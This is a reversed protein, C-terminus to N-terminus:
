ITAAFTVQKTLPKPVSPTFAFSPLAGGHKGTQCNIELVNSSGGVNDSGSGNSSSSRSHPHGEESKDTYENDSSAHSTLTTNEDSIPTLSGTWIRLASGTVSPTSLATSNNTGSGLSHLEVHSSVVNLAANAMENMLSSSNQRLLQAHKLVSDAVAADQPNSNDDTNTNALTNHWSVIAASDVLENEYLSRLLAAHRPTRVDQNAESLKELLQLVASQDEPMTIFTHLLRIIRMATQQPSRSDDRLKKALASPQKANVVTSSGSNSETLQYLSEVFACLISRRDASFQSSLTELNLLMFGLSLGSRAGQQLHSSARNVFKAIRQDAPLMAIREMEREDSTKSTDEILEPVTDPNAIAEWITRPSPSSTTDHPANADGEDDHSFRDKDRSEIPLGEYGETPIDDIDAAIDLTGTKAYYRDIVAKAPDILSAHEESALLRSLPLTPASPEVNFDDAESDSGFSPGADEDEIDDEFHMDNESDSEADIDSDSESDSDSGSEVGSESGDDDSEAEFHVTCEDAMNALGDAAIPAHAHGHVHGHVHVDHRNGSEDDSDNSDDSDDDSSSSSSNGDSEDDVESESDFGSCSDSDSDWQLGSRDFMVDDETSSSASALASQSHVMSPTPAPRTPSRSSTSDHAEFGFGFAVDAAKRGTYATVAKTSTHKSARPQRSAFGTDCDFDSCDDEGNARRRDAREEFENVLRVMDDEHKNELALIQTAKSQREALLIEQVEDYAEKIIQNTIELKRVRRMLYQNMEVLRSTEFSAASDADGDAAVIDALATSSSHPAAATAATAAATVSSAPTSYVSPRKEPPSATFPALSSADSAQRLPGDNAADVARYSPPMDADSAHVAQSDFAAAALKEVAEVAATPSAPVAAKAFPDQSDESVRRSLRPGVTACSSLSFHLAAPSKVRWAFSQWSRVLASSSTFCCSSACCSCTCECASSKSDPELGFTDGPELSTRAQAAGFTGPAAQGCGQSHAQSHASEDASLERLPGTTHGITHKNACVADLVARTISCKTNTCTMFLSPMILHAMDSAFEVASQVSAPLMCCPDLSYSHHGATSPLAMTKLQQAGPSQQTYQASLPSKDAPYAHGSLRPAVRSSGTSGPEM